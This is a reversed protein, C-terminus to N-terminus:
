VVGGPITSLPTQGGLAPSAFKRKRLKWGGEKGEGEMEKQERAREMGEEM